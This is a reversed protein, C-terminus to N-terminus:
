QYMGNICSSGLHFIWKGCCRSNRKGLHCLYISSVASLLWMKGYLIHLQWSFYSTITFQTEYFRLRCVNQSENACKSLMMLSTALWLISIIFYVLAFIHTRSAVHTIDPMEPQVTLPVGLLLEWDVPQCNHDLIPHFLKMNRLM